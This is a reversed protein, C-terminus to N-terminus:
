LEGAYGKRLLDHSEFPGSATLETVPISDKLQSGLGRANQLVFLFSSFVFFEFFNVSPIQAFFVIYASSLFSLNEARLSGVLDLCNCYSKDNHYLSICPITFVLNPPLFTEQTSRQISDSQSVSWFFFLALPIFSCGVLLRLHSAIHRRLAPTFAPLHFCSTKFM